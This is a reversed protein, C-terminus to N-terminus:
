GGPRHPESLSTGFLFPRGQSMKPAVWEGTVIRSAHVGSKDREQECEAGHESASAYHREEDPHKDKGYADPNNEQYDSQQGQRWGHFLDRRRYDRQNQKENQERMEADCNSGNVPPFM